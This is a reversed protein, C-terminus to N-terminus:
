WTSCEALVSSDFYLMLLVLFNQKVPLGFIMLIDSDDEDDEDYSFLITMFSMSSLSLKSPIIRFKRM